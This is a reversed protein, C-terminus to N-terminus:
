SEVMEASHPVADIRLVKLRYRVSLITKTSNTYSGVVSTLRVADVSVLEGM